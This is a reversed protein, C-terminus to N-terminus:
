LSLFCLGSSFQFPENRCGAERRYMAPEPWARLFSSFWLIRVPPSCESPMKQGFLWTQACAWSSLDAKVSDPFCSGVQVPHTEGGRGAGPRQRAM